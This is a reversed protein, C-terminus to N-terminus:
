SRPIATFPVEIGEVVNGEKCHQILFDQKLINIIAARAHEEDVHGDYYGRVVQSVRYMEESAEIPQKPM